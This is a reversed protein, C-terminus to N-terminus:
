RTLVITSPYRLAITCDANLIDIPGSLTLVGNASDYAGNFTAQYDPCTGRVTLSVSPNEGIGISGTITGTGVVDLYDFGDTIEGVMGWSGGLDGRTQTITLSFDAFLAIGQSVGSLEGVYTGSINEHQEQPGTSSDGCGVVLLAILIAGIPIKGKRRHTRPLGRM